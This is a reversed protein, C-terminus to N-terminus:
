VEDYDHDTPRTLDAIVGGGREMMHPLVAGCIIFTSALNSEM